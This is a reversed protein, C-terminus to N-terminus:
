GPDKKEDTGYSQSIKLKFRSVSNLIIPILAKSANLQCPRESLGFSFNAKKPLSIFGKGVKGKFIGIVNLWCERKTVYVM